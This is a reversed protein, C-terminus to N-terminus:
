LFNEHKQLFNRNRILFAQMKILFKRIEQSFNRHKKYSVKTNRIFNKRHKKYSASIKKFGKFILHIYTKLILKLSLLKNYVKISKFIM